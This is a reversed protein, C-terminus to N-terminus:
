DTRNIRNHVTNLEDATKSDEKAVEGVRHSGLIARTKAGTRITSQLEEGFMNKCSSVLLTM